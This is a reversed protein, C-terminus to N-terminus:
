APGGPGPTHGESVSQQKQLELQKRLSDIDLQVLADTANKREEAKEGLMRLVVPLIAAIISLVSLAILM